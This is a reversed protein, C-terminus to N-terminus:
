LAIGIDNVNYNRPESYLRVNVCEVSLCSLCPSHWYKRCNHNKGFVYKEVPTTNYIGEPTLILSSITLRVRM